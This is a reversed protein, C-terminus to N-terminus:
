RGHEPLAPYPWRRGHVRTQFRLPPIRASRGDASVLVAGATPAPEINRQHDPLDRQSCGALQAGPDERDHGVRMDRTDVDGDGDINAAGAYINGDADAYAGDQGDPPL